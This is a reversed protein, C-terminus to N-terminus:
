PRWIRVSAPQMTGNVARVLEHEVREPDVEHRLRDGFQDVTLEADYRARNFRRDVNHQVRRLAPRAIAAGALTAVAVVWPADTNLLRSASVVIAAFTIGVLLTVTAYSTTRSIIRDIDYLHFRLVAIGVSVPLLALAISWALNGLSTDNSLGFVATGVFLLAMVVAAFGVWRFQLREVGTARRARLGVGVAAIVATAVIVALAANRLVWNDGIDAGALFEPSIPNAVKVPLHDAPWGSHWLPVHPAVMESLVTVVTAAAGVIAVGRWRRSAFGDPFLLLPLTTALLLFPGFLWTVLWAAGWAWWADQQGTDLAHDVLAGCVNFLGDISWVGLFVWGIGNDPRRHTLLWGAFGFVCAALTYVVEWQLPQALVPVLGLSGITLLALQGARQGSQLPSPGGIPAV